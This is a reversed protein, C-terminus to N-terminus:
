FGRFIRAQDPTGRPDVEASRRCVFIVESERLAVDEM